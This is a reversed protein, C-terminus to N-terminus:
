AQAQIRNEAQKGFVGIGSSSMQYARQIGKVQKENIDIGEFIHKANGLQGHFADETQLNPGWQIM